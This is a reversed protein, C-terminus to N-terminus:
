ARVAGGGSTTRNFKQQCARPDKEKICSLRDWITVPRPTSLSFEENSHLIVKRGSPFKIVIESNPGAKIKEDFLIPVSGTFPIRGSPIEKYLTGTISSVVAAEGSKEDLLYYADATPTTKVVPITEGPDGIPLTPIIKTQGEDRIKKAESNKIWQTALAIVERARKVAWQDNQREGVKLLYYAKELALSAEQESSFSLPQNSEFLKVCEEGAREYGPICSCHIEIATATEVRRSVTHPPCDLAGASPLFLVFSFIGFLYSRRGSLYKM